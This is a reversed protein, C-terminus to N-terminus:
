IEFSYIKKTENGIFISGQKTQGSYVEIQSITKLPSNYDLVSTTFDLYRAKIKDFDSFHRRALIM